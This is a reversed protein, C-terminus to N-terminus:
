MDTVWVVSRNFEWLWRVHLDETSVHPFEGREPSLKETKTQAACVQPLTSTETVKDSKTPWELWYEGSYSIKLGGLVRIVHLHM